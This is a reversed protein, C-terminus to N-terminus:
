KSRVQLKHGSLRYERESWDADFKNRVQVKELWVRCGDAMVPFWAFWERWETLPRKEKVRWRVLWIGGGILASAKM